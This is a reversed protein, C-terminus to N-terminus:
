IFLLLICQLAVSLLSIVSKHINEAKFSHIRNSYLGSIVASVFCNIMTFLFLYISCTCFAKIVFFSVTSLACSIITACAIKEFVRKQVSINQVQLIESVKNRNEFLFSYFVIYINTISPIISLSLLVVANVPLYEQFNALTGALIPLIIAIFFQLLTYRGYRVTSINKRLLAGFLTIKSDGYLRPLCYGSRRLSLQYRMRLLFLSLSLTLVLLSIIIIYFLTPRKSIIDYVWLMLFVSGALLVFHINTNSRRTLLLSIFELLASFIAAFLLFLCSALSFEWCVFHSYQSLCNNVLLSVFTLASSGVIPVFLKGLLVGLRSAPSILIIDFLGDKIEDIMLWHLIESSLMSVLAAFMALVLQTPIWSNSAYYSCFLLLAPAFLLTGLLRKSNGIGYLQTRVFYRM